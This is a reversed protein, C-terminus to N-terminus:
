VSRRVASRSGNAVVSVTSTLRATAATVSATVITPSAGTTSTVVAADEVRMPSSTSCFRGSILSRRLAKSTNSSLGPTFPCEANPPARSAFWSMTSPTGAVTGPPCPVFAVTRLVLQSRSTCTTATPDVASYPSNVPAATFKTVRLPLL